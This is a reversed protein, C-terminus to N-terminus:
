ILLYKVAREPHMLTIEKETSKIHEKKEGKRDAAKGLVKMWDQERAMASRNNTDLSLLDLNLM